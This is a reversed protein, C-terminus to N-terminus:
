GTFLRRLRQLRARFRSRPPPEAREMTAVRRTVSAARMTDASWRVGVLRPVSVAPPPPSQLLALRLEVEVLVSRARLRSLERERADKARSRAVAAIRESAAEVDQRTTQEVALLNELTAARKRLAAPESSLRAITRDREARAADREQEVLSLLARVARLNAEADDSAATKRALEAAAAESRALAAEREAVLGDAIRQVRFLETRLHEIAGVAAARGARLEEVAATSSEAVANLDALEARATELEARAQAAIERDDDREALQARLEAVQVLAQEAEVLDADLRALDDRARESAALAEDRAAIAADRAALAEDRERRSAESLEVAHQYHQEVEALREALARSGNSGNIRPTQGEFRAKGAGDRAQALEARLTRVTQELSTIEATLVELAAVEALPAARVVFQLTEADQDRMIEAIVALDFDDRRVFPVLDSSEFVSATTREVRTAIFGSESLLKLVSERTYFRLHSDDLIGLQQYEFRGRLLALRVAGHAVNPISVVAYGGERMIRRSSGLLRAPNRLHELVDAFVVVDFRDEGVIEDLEVHDLDAKITRECAHQAAALGGEDIDIGVVANGAQHLVAALNGPGCGVDLVRKGSGVMERIRAYSANPDPAALKDPPLAAYSKSEM